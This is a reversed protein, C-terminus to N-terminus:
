SIICSVSGPRLYKMEKAQENGGGGHLSVSRTDIKLQKFVSDVRSMINEDHSNIAMESIQRTQDKLQEVFKPQSPWPENEMFYLLMESNQQQIVYDLIRLNHVLPTALLNYIRDSGKKAEEVFFSQNRNDIAIKVQQKFKEEPVWTFMSPHSPNFM